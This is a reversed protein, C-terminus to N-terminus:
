GCRLLRLVGDCMWSCWQVMVAACWERGARFRMCCRCCLWFRLCRRGYRCVSDCGDDEAGAAFLDGGCAALVLGQWLGSVFWNAALGRCVKSLMCFVMGCGIRM